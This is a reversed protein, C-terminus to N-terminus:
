SLKEKFVSCGSSSRMRLARLAILNRWPLQPSFDAMTHVQSSSCVTPWFFIKQALKSPPVMSKSNQGRAPVTPSLVLDYGLRDAFPTIVRYDDVTPRSIVIPGFMGEIRSFRARDRIGELKRHPVLNMFELAMDPDVFLTCPRWLERWIKTQLLCVQAVHLVFTHRMLKRTNDIVLIREGRDRAPNYPNTLAGRGRETPPGPETTAAVRSKPPSLARGKLPWPATQTQAAKAPLPALSRPLSSPSTAGRTNLM